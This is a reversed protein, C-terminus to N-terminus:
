HRCDLPSREISQVYTFLPHQNAHGRSRILRTPSACIARAAFGIVLEMPNERPTSVDSEIGLTAGGHSM